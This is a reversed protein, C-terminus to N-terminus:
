ICILYQRKCILCLVPCQNTYVSRQVKEKFKTISDNFRHLPKPKGELDMMSQNLKCYTAELLDLKLISQLCDIVFGFGVATISNLTFTVHLTNRRYYRKLCSSKDRWTKKVRTHSIKLTQDWWKRWGQFKITFYMKLVPKLCIAVLHLM